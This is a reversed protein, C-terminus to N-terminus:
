CVPLNCTICTTSSYYASIVFKFLFLSSALGAPLFVSDDRDDGMAGMAMLNSFAAVSTVVMTWPVLEMSILSVVAVEPLLLSIGTSRKEDAEGGCVGGRDSGVGRVGTEVLLAIVISRILGFDGGFRDQYVWWRSAVSATSSATTSMSSTTSMTSTTSM